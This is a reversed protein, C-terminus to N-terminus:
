SQSQLLRPAELFGSDILYSFYTSLLKDEIPPCIISTGVLGNITNKCDFKLVGSHSAKEETNRGSFLSVLPYLAHEPFRGAIKILEAKWQDHSIQQISYGLSRISNILLSSSLVSSNIVHFNKGLSEKQRSLHVIAQSVYDVPAMEELMEGEPVSGLQICGKILRYLFDNPNFVGTQSHGSVRGLRYISVPLGRDRAQTVLKEAVWKSQVYGGSPIPYDDLSDQERVVKEEWHGVSSFVGCTSIFHVPKVKIRSALRLVEQTGIVNAAKLTSYPSAHHVWAGNHYIVDLKSAIALFQQESLGLLPESLDGVVPIIRTSLSENWLLYSKLTNQIRKNGEEANASRVLCYITAQTQRLLEDLLFAGVFGTAGTLFICDPETADIPLTEPYITPDLVAETEFDVVSKTSITSAGAQRAIEISKALDALTPMEFLHRLPLEVQFTERVRFVLQTVLLSHGGLNFFNDHIGVSEVGLVEAWIKSLQKEIPTRPAVYTTELASRSLGPAPLAKRDIKGNPTLPLASLMVFAGPVMYEPLKEQLYTRLQPVLERAFKGQLPNNGYSSWPRLRVKENPFAAFLGKRSRQQFVVDYSGDAAASLWSIHIEYPLEQQLNWLDEPNVFHEYRTANWTNVNDGEAKWDVIATDPVLNSNLLELTKVEALVRANPVRRLGLREPQTSELLQCVSTLTLQQEQWDLWPFEETPNVPTAIHLTVDYRFKTLENPYHGRKPQIQVYSIQPIHQGLALFFTPDIVLEQEQAIAQQVRQQLQSRSLSSSSTHLAVSTHFAELLPLSRVDGVFINGGPKVAKVAGELVRLLYDISPFYQIVSNLIVTDFSQAEIGEFNDARRQLLTVHSWEDGSRKLEEIHRLAQASFDTGWYQTCHPAIRYLLLGMGCGIELVRKPQLSLIRRVTHDVWERMEEELIPLGTYSSNWGIINFTPNQHECLQTYTDEYLTQWQGIHEAQWDEVLEQSESGQSNQVVYAVLRPDGPIDERVIVTAEEVASHQSLVAEIEGLEIRFGRIKVQHDIRGIFEINGDPLYRALDGTKYLRKGPEQSFPHPIFREATLDPRNLYCKALGAGGIYLEGPIGVPVPQLHADLLYIQTNQVPKGIPTNRSRDPQPEVSYLTACITAETPGYGNIIQLGLVRQQIGALLQHNIPEVGVLLRKLSLQNPRHELWQSLANLMFPPIYASQIQRDSLWEILAAPDARLSDPVIHLTGGSLLASFIEYISVDFNLSTYLSCRDGVSLPARRDFDTLLNIVGEHNCCVGKPKGTSGSTYLLYALNQSTTRNVPNFISELAIAEWSTDLCIVRAQHKPLRDLLRHQTLLVSVKADELIFALREQPYTPDLPVYTGGAKLIGLIAVVMDLSRSDREMCVGVLEQSEISLSHLHYALQNAKRNLERYSLQQNEFVVAITDPSQEVMAEFRQHLCQNKPYDAQTANWEVLLQQREAETLLPLDSLRQEPNAVISSLLTCFHRVMRTITAADFLDTNYEILGTLGSSTEKMFLTLDFKATKTNVNLEKLTLGPLELKETPTNQLAFAVQFLPHHSLSREPQLQEVLYEFPIDQHTYAGVTVERVRGLLERFSPNDGLYTHLVLTNVFFGILGEIEARNRNAIPSGVLIDGQETYRYLLTKFAALLTMFLTVGQHRSLSEIEETLNTPLSFSKTAGRFTEVVPRPRDTPLRLVPPPSSLQQRWYDLQAELVEGQLWQRQWVAFDAYQIPLEPLPSPKGACFAEYLAALERILVGMSWGDSIIHHMTFLMVYEMEGLELLTTRLLPCKVLDFPQQADEQALKLVTAEREVESLERLDVVPLALTVTPAIAQVPEGEVTIFTTRLAEHRRVIEQLSQELVTVNLAGTLRVPFSLNYVSSNAEFQNLFWLRQQAYSLPFTNSARSQPKIPTQTVNSKKQMLQLLLERKEPSLAAIRQNFDSM